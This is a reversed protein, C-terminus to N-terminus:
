PEHIQGGGGGGGGGLKMGVTAKMEVTSHIALPQRKRGFAVFAKVTVRPCPEM